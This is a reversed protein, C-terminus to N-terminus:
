IQWTPDGCGQRAEERARGDRCHQHPQPEAKGQGLVEGTCGSCWPQSLHSVRAHRQMLAPLVGTQLRHFQAGLLQTDEAGARRRGEATSSHLGARSDERQM